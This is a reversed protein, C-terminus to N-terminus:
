FLLPDTSVVAYQVIDLLVFRESRLISRSGKDLAMLRIYRIWWSDTHHYEAFFGRWLVYPATSPGHGGFTFAFPLHTQPQFPRLM